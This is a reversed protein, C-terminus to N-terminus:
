PEIDNPNACDRRGGLLNIERQYYTVAQEIEYQDRNGPNARIQIIARHLLCILGENTKRALVANARDVRRLEERESASVRWNVFNGFLAIFVAATALLVARRNGRTSLM